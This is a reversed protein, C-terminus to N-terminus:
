EFEKKAGDPIRADVDEVSIVEVPSLSKGPKLRLQINQTFSQPANGFAAVEAYVTTTEFLNGDGEARLEYTGRSLGSFSFRGSLDTFTEYVRRGNFTLTVKIPNPPAVNNPFAVKGQLTHIGQGQASSPNPLLLLTLLAVLVSPTFRFISGRAM